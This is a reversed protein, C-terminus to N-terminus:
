LDVSIVEENIWRVQASHSYCGNHANYVALQLPGKDTYLTVFLMNGNELVKEIEVMQSNLGIDTVEIKHVLAGVFTATNDESCVYGWTECCKSYDEVLVELKTNNDLTVVYGTLDNREGYHAVTEVSVVKTQSAQPHPVFQVNWSTAATSPDHMEM